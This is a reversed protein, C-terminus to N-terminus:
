LEDFSPVRDLEQEKRQAASMSLDLFNDDSCRSLSLMTLAGHSLKSDNEKLWM